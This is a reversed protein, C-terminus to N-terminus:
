YLYGYFHNVIRIKEKSIVVGIKEPFSTSQGISEIHLAGHHHRHHCDLISLPRFCQTTAMHGKMGLALEDNCVSIKLVKKLDM